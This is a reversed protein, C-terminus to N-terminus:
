EALQAELRPSSTNFHHQEVMYNWCMNWCSKVMNYSHLYTWGYLKVMQEPIEGIIECSNWIGFWITKGIVGMQSVPYSSWGNKASIEVCNNTAFIVPFVGLKGWILAMSWLDLVKVVTRTSFLLDEHSFSSRLCGQYWLSQQLLLQHPFFCTSVCINQFAHLHCALTLSIQCEHEFAVVIMVMM